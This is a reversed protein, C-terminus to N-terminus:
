LNTNAQIKQELQSHPALMEFLHQEFDAKKGLICQNGCVAPERSDCHGMPYFPNM